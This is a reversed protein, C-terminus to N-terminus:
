LNLYEIFGLNFLLTSLTILLLSVEEDLIYVLIEVDEDKFLYELMQKVDSWNLRDLGCGIQPIALKKINNEVMHNKLCTLSSWLTRLTPKGTSREKTVLYYIFRDKEDLVALGGTKVHQNLLDGVRRFTKRFTVAVGAGMSMDEAVCHALSYEESATFLDGSVTKVKKNDITSNKMEDYYKNFEKMNKLRFGDNEQRYNKQFNDRRPYQRDQNWDTSRNRTDSDSYRNKRFSNDSRDRDTFEGTNRGKFDESYNGKRYPKDYKDGHRQNDQRWTNDNSARGQGFSKRSYEQNMQSSYRDNHSEQNPSKNEFSLNPKNYDGYDDDFTEETEQTVNVKQYNDNWHDDASVKSNKEFSPDYHQSVKSIAGLEEEPKDKKNETKQAKKQLIEKNTKKDCKVEPNKELAKQRANDERAKEQQRLLKKEGQTLVRESTNGTESKKGLAKQRANDERVKEQQRLLKREGPTLVKESTDVTESKKDDHEEVVNTPPVDDRKSTSKNEVLNSDTGKKPNSRNKNGRGM